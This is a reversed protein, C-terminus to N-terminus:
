NEGSDFPFSINEFFCLASVFKNLYHLVVEFNHWGETFPTEFFLEQPVDADTSGRIQLSEPDEASVEPNLSTGTSLSWQNKTFDESQMSVLSYEHSYNLPREPDLQIAFRLTMSTSVIRKKEHPVLVLEARRM